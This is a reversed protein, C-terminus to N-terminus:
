GKPDVIVWEVKTVTELPGGGPGSHEVKDPFLGIQKGMIKLPTPKDWLKIEVDVTKIVDGSGQERRTTIKRKVSQVARMAGAPAGEALQVNGNDDVKYHDISSHSLLSMEHLVTDQTMKVRSLRQERASRVMAIVDPDSMLEDVSPDTHDIGTLRIGARLAAKYPNDDELLERVFAQKLETSAM